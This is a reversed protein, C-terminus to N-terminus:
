TNTQVNNKAPQGGTPCPASADTFDIEVQVAVADERAVAATPADALDVADQGAAGVHALM